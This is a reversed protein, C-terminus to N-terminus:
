AKQIVPQLLHELKGDVDSLRWPQWARTDPEPEPESWASPREAAIADLLALRRCGPCPCSRTM